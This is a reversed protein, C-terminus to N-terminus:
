KAEEKTSEQEELKKEHESIKKELFQEFKDKKGLFEAQMMILKELGVIHQNLKGVEKFLYGMGGEMETVRSQLIKRPNQKEGKRKAVHGGKQSKM